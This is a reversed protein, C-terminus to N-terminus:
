LLSRAPGPSSSSDADPQAVARPPPASPASPSSSARTMEAARRRLDARCVKGAGTRPLEALLEYRRPLKYRAIRGALFGALDGPAAAGAERLAIFAVGVEGWVPDPVGVVAVAAVAPHDCLASEAPANEALMAVRDGRSVGQAALRRAAREARRNWERFRIREGTEADILAIREPSLDARRALWDAAPGTM